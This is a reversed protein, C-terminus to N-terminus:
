STSYKRMQRQFISYGIPIGSALGVAMGGLITLERVSRGFSLLVIGVLTLVGWLVGLKDTIPFRQNATKSKSFPAKASTTGDSASQYRQNPVIITPLTTTHPSCQPLSGQLSRNSDGSFHKTHSTPNLM